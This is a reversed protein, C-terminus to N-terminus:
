FSAERSFYIEVKKLMAFIEKNTRLSSTLIDPHFSSDHLSEKIRRKENELWGPLHGNMHFFYLMSKGNLFTV